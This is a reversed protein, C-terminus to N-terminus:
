KGDYYEVHNRKQNYKKFHFQNGLNIYKFEFHNLNLCHGHSMCFKTIELEELVACFIFNEM